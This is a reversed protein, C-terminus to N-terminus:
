VRELPCPQREDCAHLRQAAEAIWHWKPPRDRYFKLYVANQYGLEELMGNLKQVDEQQRGRPVLKAEVALLNHEAGPV